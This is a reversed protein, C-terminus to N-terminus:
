RLKNPSIIPINAMEKISRVRHDADYNQGTMYAAEFVARYRSDRDTFRITTPTRWVARGTRVYREARDLGCTATTGVIPNEIKVQKM